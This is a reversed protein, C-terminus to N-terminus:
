FSIIWIIIQSGFRTGPFQAHRLRDRRLLARHPPAARLGEAVRGDASIGARGHVALHDAPLSDSISWFFLSEKMQQYLCCILNMQNVERKKLM